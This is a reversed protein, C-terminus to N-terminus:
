VEVQAQTVEGDCERQINRFVRDHRANGRVEYTPDRTEGHWANAWLISDMDRDAQKRAKEQKKEKKIKLM